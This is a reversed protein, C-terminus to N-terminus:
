SRCYRRIFKPTKVVPVPADDTSIVRISGFEEGFDIVDDVKDDIDASKFNKIREASNLRAQAADAELFKRGSEGRFESSGLKM